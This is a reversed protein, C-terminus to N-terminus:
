DRQTTKCATTLQGHGAQCHKLDSETKHAEKMERKRERESSVSLSLTGWVSVCEGLGGGGKRGEGRTSLTPCRVRASLAAGHRGEGRRQRVCLSVREREGETCVCPNKGSHLGQKLPKILRLPVRKQM